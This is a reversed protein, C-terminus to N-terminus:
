AWDTEDMSRNLHPDRAYSCERVRAMFADVDYNILAHTGEQIPPLIDGTKGVLGREACWDAAADYEDWSGGCLRMTTMNISDQSWRYDDGAFVGNLARVKCYGDESVTLVEYYTPDSIAASKWVQGVIVPATM